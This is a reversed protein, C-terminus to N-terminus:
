ISVQVDGSWDYRRESEPKCIKKSGENEVIMHTVHYGVCIKISSRYVNLKRSVCLIWSRRLHGASLESLRYSICQIKKEMTTDRLCKIYALMYGRGKLLFSVISICLVKKDCVTLEGEKEKWNSLIGNLRELMM